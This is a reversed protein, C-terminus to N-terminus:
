APGTPGPGEPAGPAPCSPGGFPIWGVGCAAGGRQLFIVTPGEQGLLVAQSPPPWGAGDSALILVIPEDGKALRRDGFLLTWQKEVRVPHGHRELELAMGAAAPWRGGDTLEIRVPDHNTGVVPALLHWASAITKDTLAAAPTADASDRIGLASMALVAVLAIATGPRLRDLWSRPAPEGEELDIDVVPRAAWQSWVGEAGVAAALLPLVPLVTMWIMLYHYAPGVIRTVSLVALAGGGLGFLGLWVALPRRRLVGLVIGTVALGAFGLTTALPHRDVVGDNLWAHHQFMTIGVMTSVSRWSEGWPHTPHTATFFSILKSLNGTGFFEDWLPPAWEAILLMVAIALDPRYTWWSTSSPLDLAPLGAPIHDPVPEPHARRWAWRVAQAVSALLILGVVVPATSVHTQVAVSGVVIAWALAGRSGAAAFAAAVVTFLVPLTVVYPNWPDRLLGPGLGCVVALAGVATWWGARPGGWRHAVFAAAAVSLVGISVAGIWSGTPSGHTLWTPLSLLYFYSPGPHHWGFRSYPGVLVQHGAIADRTMMTILADDASETRPGGGVIVSILMLIMPGAAVGAAAPAPWWRRRIRRPAEPVSPLGAPVTVAQREEALVEPLRLTTAM